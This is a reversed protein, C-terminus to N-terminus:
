SRLVFNTMIEIDLNKFVEEGKPKDHNEVEKYSYFQTSPSNFRTAVM